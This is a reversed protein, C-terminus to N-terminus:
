LLSSNFGRTSRSNQSKQRSEAAIKECIPRSFNVAKSMLSLSAFNYCYIFVGRTKKGLKFKNLDTRQLLRKFSALSSFDDPTAPISQELM